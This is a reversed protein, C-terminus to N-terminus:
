EVISSTFNLDEWYLRFTERRNNTAYDIITLKLYDDHWELEYNDEDPKKGDTEVFLEFWRFDSMWRYENIHICCVPILLLIIVTEIVIIIKYKNM